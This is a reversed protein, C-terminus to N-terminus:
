DEVLGGFMALGGIIFVLDFIAMLRLYGLLASLPVGELLERTAVVAALLTPSLLPFLVVAVILDRARTRVTMAGFLTGSAAMGPTALLGILLLGPGLARLDLSFLVAAAPLVLLLIVLLFVQLGLAKGAFIASRALPAALLGDLAGEERERQWTRGLALVASFLLALWIVGSAVLRAQSLGSYFALSATVVVLLSFVGSTTTVEGSRLEIALDKHLVVLAQVAWNPPRMQQGVPPVSRSVSPQPRDM